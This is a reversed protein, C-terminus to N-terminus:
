WNHYSPFTTVISQHRKCLFSKCRVCSGKRRHNLNGCGKKYEGTTLKAENIYVVYRGETATENEHQATTVPISRKLVKIMKTFIKMAIGCWNIYRCFIHSVVLNKALQWTFELGAFMQQNELCTKFVDEFRRSYTKFIDQLRKQLVDQLRRSSTKQLRRRFVYSNPSNKRM